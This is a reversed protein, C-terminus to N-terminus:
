EAAGPSTVEDRSADLAIRRALREIARPARGKQGVVWAVAGLLRVALESSRGSRALRPAPRIIWQLMFWAIFRKFYRTEFRLGNRVFYFSGLVSAPGERFSSSVRHRITCSIDVYLEIGAQRCRMSWDSDEFILYYSPDFLGVREWTARPAFICCGSLCESRRLPGDIATFEGKQLHRPWGRDVVGGAFWAESPCDFHRIEPSIAWSRLASSDKLIAEFTEPEVATDNNLVAAFSFGQDLARRLGINNGEAYGLNSGAQLVEDALGSEEIRLLSDDSSGNDVVIVHPTATSARLSQLCALTDNAGNWNLVIVAIDPLSRSM